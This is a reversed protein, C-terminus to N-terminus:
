VRHDRFITFEIVNKVWYDRSFLIPTREVNYDVQEILLLPSGIDIGLKQALYSDALAPIIKAVGYEIKQGCEEELLDCLSGKFGKLTERKVIAQSVINMSFLAKKKGAKIVRQIFVLPSGTKVQLIDSMIRDAEITRSEIDTVGPKLGISEIMQLATLKKEMSKSAVSSRPMRVFTGRGAKRFIFGDEELLRLAERLIGRSVGLEAALKPETPM